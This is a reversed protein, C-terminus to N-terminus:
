NKSDNPLVEMGKGFVIFPSEFQNVEIPTWEIEEKCDFEM